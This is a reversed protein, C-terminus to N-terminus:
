NLSQYFVVLKIDYCTNYVICIDYFAGILYPYYQLYCGKRNRNVIKKHLTPTFLFISYDVM